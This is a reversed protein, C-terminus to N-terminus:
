TQKPFCAHSTQASGGSLMTLLGPVATQFTYSLSVEALGNCAGSTATGNGGAAPVQVYSSALTIGWASAVGQGLADLRTATQLEAM